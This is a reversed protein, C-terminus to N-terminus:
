ESWQNTNFFIKEKLKKKEISEKTVKSDGMKNDSEYSLRYSKDKKM